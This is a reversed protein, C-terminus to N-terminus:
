RLLAMKFLKLSFSMLRFHRFRKILFFKSEGSSFCHKEEEIEIIKADMNNGLHISACTFDLNIHQKMM